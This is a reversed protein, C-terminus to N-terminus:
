VYVFNQPMDRCSLVPAGSAVGSLAWPHNVKEMHKNETQLKASTAISDAHAAAADEKSHLLERQLEKLEILLLQEEISQDAFKCCNIVLSM